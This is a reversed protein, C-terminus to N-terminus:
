FLLLEGFCRPCHFDPAPTDVPAWSLFHPRVTKDGCKYINGQLVPPLARGDLGFLDFPIVLTMQWDCRGESREVPAPVGGIRVIRAMEEKPLLVRDTRGTGKGVLLYGGANVEINYYHPWEPAKFFFECCSDEWIPGGDEQNCVRVGIGSVEWGIVFAEETRAIRGRCSPAYPFAEKWNVQAVEFPEGWRELAEPVAEAAVTPMVPIRLTLKGM